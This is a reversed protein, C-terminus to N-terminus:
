GQLEECTITPYSNLFMAMSRKTGQTNGMCSITFGSRNRNALWAPRVVGYYVTEGSDTGNSGKLTADFTFKIYGKGYMVWSGIPSGGRLIRHTEKDLTVTQSLNNITGSSGNRNWDAANTLVVMEFKGNDTLAFLEEESVSRDIEGGYRNPNICIDGKSNLYYQHNQVLFQGTATHKRVIYAAMSVGSQTTFLDNHGTLCAAYEKCSPVKSSAQWDFGGMYKNGENAANGVGVNYVIGGGASLYAGQVSESRGGWMQYHDDLGNYSHMSYYYTKSEAGVPDGAADYEATEDTIKVNDHRAIVPAEMAGLSLMRGYYPHEFTKKQTFEAYVHTATLSGSGSKEGDGSVVENRFTRIEEWDHWDNGGDKRLGTQPDLEILWNGTGFSGFAMFMNGNTDYIIQPDIGNVDIAGVSNQPIASQMLVGKYEAAGDGGILNLDKIHYMVICARSYRVNSPTFSSPRTSTLLPMRSDAMVLCTYLWYGGGQAEVIDPAWWQLDGGNNTSNMWEKLEDPFIAANDYDDTQTTKGAYEWNLMGDYSVHVDNGTAWGTSFLYYVPNGNEDKTELYSPDHTNGLFQAGNELSMDDVNGKYQNKPDTVYAPVVEISYSVGDATCSIRGASVATFTGSAADYTAIEAYPVEAGDKDYGKINKAGKVVSQTDAEALYSTAGGLNDYCIRDGATKKVDATKGCAAFAAAFLLSGLALSVIKVTKGM